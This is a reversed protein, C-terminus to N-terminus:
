PPDIPVIRRSGRTERGATAARRAPRTVLDAADGGGSSSGAVDMM